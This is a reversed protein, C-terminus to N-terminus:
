GCVIMFDVRLNLSTSFSGPVRLGTSRNAKLKSALVSNVGDGEGLYTFEAKQQEVIKASITRSLDLDVVTTNGSNCVVNEEARTSCEANSSGKIGLLKVLSSVFDASGQGEVCLHVSPQHPPTRYISYIAQNRPCPKCQM